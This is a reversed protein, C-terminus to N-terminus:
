QIMIVIIISCVKSHSLLRQIRKLNGAVHIRFHQVSSGSRTLSKRCNNCFRSNHVGVWDYMSGGLVTGYASVWGRRERVIVVVVGVWLGMCIGM